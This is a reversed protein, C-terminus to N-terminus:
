GGFSDFRQAKITHVSVRCHSYVRASFFSVESEHIGHARPGGELLGASLTAPDKGAM